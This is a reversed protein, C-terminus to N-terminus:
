VISAEIALAELLKYSVITGLLTGGNGALGALRLVHEKRRSAELDSTFTDKLPGDHAACIEISMMSTFYGDVFRSLSVLAGVGVAGGTSQWAGIDLSALLFCSTLVLYGATLLNLRYSVFRGSAAHGLTVCLASAMTCVQLTPGESVGPVTAHRVALPILSPQLGWCVFNVVFNLFCYHLLHRTPIPERGNDVGRDFLNGAGDGSSSSRGRAGAAGIIAVSPSSSPSHSTPLQWMPAASAMDLLADEVVLVFSSDDARNAASAASAAAAESASVAAQQAGPLPPPSPSPSVAPHSVPPPIASASTVAETHDRRDMIADGLPHGGCGGSSGGGGSSSGGGGSGGGGGGSGGGGGGSDGGGGSSGGGGGNGGVGVESAGHCGSKTTSEVEYETVHSTSSSSSSGNGSAPAEFDPRLSSMSIEDAVRKGGSGGTAPRVSRRLIALYALLPVLSLVACLAFFTSVGFRPHAEGPGEVADIIALLLMSAAGGTNVAPILAASQRSVWPMLVVSSMSGVTGAMACAVFLALSTTGNTVVHWSSAALLAAVVNGLLLAVILADRRIRTALSVAGTRMKMKKCRDPRARYIVYLPVLVTPLNVAVNMNSALRLREPLVTQMVPIQLFLGVPVLYCTGFGLLLFLVSNVDIPTQNGRRSSRAAASLLTRRTRIPM